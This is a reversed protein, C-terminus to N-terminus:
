TQLRLVLKPHEFSSQVQMAELAQNSSEALAQYQSIRSTAEAAKEYASALQEKLLQVEGRLKGEMGESPGAAEPKSTSPLGGPQLKSSVQPIFFYLEGEISM